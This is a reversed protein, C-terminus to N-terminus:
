IFDVVKKLEERIESHKFDLDEEFKMKSGDSKYFLQESTGLHLEYCLGKPVLINDIQKMLLPINLPLPCKIGYYCKNTIILLLEIEPVIPVQMELFEECSRVLKKDEKTSNVKDSFRADVCDLEHPSNGIDFPCYDCAVNQCKGKTAIISRVSENHKETITNFDTIKM